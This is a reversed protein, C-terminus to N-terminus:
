SSAHVCTNGTVANQRCLTSHALQAGQWPTLLAREKPLRCEGKLEEGGPEVQEAFRPIGVPAMCPQPSLPLHNKDIFVIPSLPPGGSTFLSTFFRVEHWSGTHYTSRHQHGM